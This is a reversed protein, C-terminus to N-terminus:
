RPLLVIEEATTPHLAHTNKFQRVTAGAKLAVALGQIIEPAEEAVIHAGLVRGDEGPLAVLKVLNQGPAASFAQRMPRFSEEYVVIEGHVARAEEETMGVTALAPNCFVATPTLEMEVFANEDGFLRRALAAGEAIAVPTLEPGGIADGIAYITPEDTRCASDVAIRGQADLRVRTNELGLDTSQVQRGIACLVADSAHERGDAFRMLLEGDATRQLSGPVAEFLLSIGRADLETRLFERLSRDFGRLFLEGRYALTTQVGLGHLISAFELAIYGGGIVLIRGPLQELHFAHDSNLVHEAGPFDPMRPRGGVALLIRETGFSRDGIQVRHPDALRAHGRLVEVGSDELLREYVENLRAIERNKHQLFDPWQFGDRRLQWGYERAQELGDGLAAAYVMYKKPICGLNVCTGGLPGMEAVATRAGLGAAVRAARVGGSGAGIVFFDFDRATSM